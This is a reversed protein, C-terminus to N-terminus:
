NISFIENLRGEVYTFNDRTVPKYAVNTTVYLFTAAKKFTSNGPILLVPSFSSNYNM